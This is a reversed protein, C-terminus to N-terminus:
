GGPVCVGTGVRVLRHRSDLLASEIIKISRLAGATKPIMTLGLLGGWRRSLGHCRLLVDPTTM